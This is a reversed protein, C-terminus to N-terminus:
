GQRLAKIPNLRVIRLAPVVAAIAAVVFVAAAASAFTLPDSEKVGWLFHRLLMAAGRAAVLGVATGALALTIGPAAAAASARYTTAGLAMRIGLERTREAVSNAVLGYLGVAALVLALLALSGLLVAQARQTALTESRVEDLTRFKAFPLLPDVTQVAREMGAVVGAADAPGSLRVFWSPAFWTHVMKLFSETTQAVPIYAAPMPAMPGWNGWGAKQQIDGVVGVITRVGGSSIQRGIVDEDPSYRKVFAQNVVIVAAAKASDAAELARGRLVPIRLASFYEPTVYTENFIGIQEAGPKASAWRGGLNLAREYPLTLAAAANVVGPQEHLNAITADFLQNV